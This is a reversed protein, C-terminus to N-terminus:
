DEASEDEARAEDVLVTPTETWHQDKAKATFIMGFGVAVAAALRKLTAVVDVIGAGDERGSRAPVRSPVQSM